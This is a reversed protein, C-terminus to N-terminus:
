ASAPTSSTSDCSRKTRCSGCEITLRVKAEDTFKIANGLLNVLIQRLRTRDSEISKRFSGRVAPHLSLQKEQARVDMLLSMEVILDCLDSAARARMELKGAEIRSLDLIDDFLELLFRGNRRITECASWLDRDPDRLHVALVDRLGHHRDHPHSNRPEYEGPIREQGPAPPRPPKGPPM